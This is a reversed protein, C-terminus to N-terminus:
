HSNVPDNVVITCAVTGASGANVTEKIQVKLQAADIQELILPTVNQAVSATGTTSNYNAEQVTWTGTSNTYIGYVYWGTAARSDNEDFPNLLLQYQITNAGGGAGRTYRPYISIRKGFSVSQADSAQYSTTLALSEVGSWTMIRSSIRAM